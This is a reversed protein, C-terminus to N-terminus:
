ERFQSGRYLYLALCKEDKTKSLPDINPFPWAEIIIRCDDRLERAFKSQLRDYCSTLQYVFVADADSIDYRLMNRYKFTVNRYRKGGLIKRAQAYLYPLIFLEVGVARCNPHQQSVEFLFSGNGSGLDYITKHDDLEALELARQRERRGTPVWPAGGLLGVYAATALAAFTAVLLFTTLHEV